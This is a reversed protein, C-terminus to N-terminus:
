WELCVAMAQTRDELLTGYLAPADGYARSHTHLDAVSLRGSRLLDFYFEAHRPKTWPTQPTEVSPHSTQHAGIIEYSPANCLDHFDFATEGHPSSLIVFRGQERLVSLQDPIVDPNGTVEFVADTLRGDTRDAVSAAWDDDAPNLSVVGPRDPLYGHRDPAIDLAFV